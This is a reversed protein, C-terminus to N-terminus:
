AGWILRMTAVALETGHEDLCRSGIDVFRRDRRLEKGICRVETTVRSGLVLPALIRMTTGAHVNGPPRPQLALMYARMTLVTAVAPPVTGPAPRDWPYLARWRELLSEGLTETHRGYVRGPEFTEFTLVDGLLVAQPLPYPGDNPEFDVRVRGGIRAAEPDAGRVNMMMRFGEDLDVLAIVYPVERKFAATPARLVTTHTHVTGIRASERWGLRDAHCSACRSRPPFQARGCADCRQYVLRGNACAQWFPLTEATPKLPVPLTRATM